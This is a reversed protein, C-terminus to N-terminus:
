SGKNDKFVGLINLPFSKFADFSNPEIGSETIKFISSRGEKIRQKWNADM